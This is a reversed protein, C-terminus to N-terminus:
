DLMGITQLYAFIYLCLYSDNNNLKPDTQNVAQSHFLKSDIISRIM